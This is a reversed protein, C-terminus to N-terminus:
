PSHARPWLQLQEPFCCVVVYRTGYMRQMCTMIRLQVGMPSGIDRVTGCDLIDYPKTALTAPGQFQVSYGRFGIEKPLCATTVGMGPQNLNLVLQGSAHTFGPPLKLSTRVAKCILALSASM